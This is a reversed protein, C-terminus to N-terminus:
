CLYAWNYPQISQQVKHTTKPAVSFFSCKLSLDCQFLKCNCSEVKLMEYLLMQCNIKLVLQFVNVFCLSKYSVFATLNM